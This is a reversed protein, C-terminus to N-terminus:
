EAHGEILSVEAGDDQLCRKMERAYRVAAGRSRFGAKTRRGGPATSWVVHTCDRMTGPETREVELLFCSM